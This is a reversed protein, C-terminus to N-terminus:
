KHKVWLCQTSQFSGWAVVFSSNSPANMQVLAHSHTTGITRNLGARFILFLFPFCFWQSSCSFLFVIVVNWGSEASANRRQCNRMQYHWFATVHCNACWSTVYKALRFPNFCEQFWKKKRLAAIASFDASPISRPLPHLCDLVVVLSYPCVHGSNM